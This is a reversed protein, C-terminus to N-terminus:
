IHHGGAHRPGGEDPRERAGQCEGALRLRCAHSISKGRRDKRKQSARPQDEKFSLLRAPRYGGKEGPAAVGKLHRRQPSLLPRGPFPRAAGDAVAGQEHSCDVRADSHLTSEGGVREFEKEQLFRLLKAQLAVPIDGVEDLFITGGGALEFRGKKQALAGTFAGKEHGFLESELLTPVIASCNIAIFPQERYHSNGHIARAILEKGTGTEGEILVTVRNESLAGIAKYVEKMDKSNGVIKGKRYAVGDDLPPRGEKKAGSLKMARSVAKELEDVDIPKTIYETAGLKIAKVTADMDHFATIMIVPVGSENSKLEGLLDLGDGDPLRIDMIAADPNCTGFKRRGEAVSAATEVEYGKETLFMKLSELIIKEDDIVLISRRKM